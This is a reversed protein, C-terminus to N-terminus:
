DKEPQCLYEESGDFKVNGIRAAYFRCAEILIDVREQVFRYVAEGPGPGLHHDWNLVHNYAHTLELTFGGYPQTSFIHFRPGYSEEPGTLRQVAVRIRDDIHFEVFGEKTIRFQEPM